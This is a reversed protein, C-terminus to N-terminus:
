VRRNRPREPIHSISRPHTKPHFPGAQVQLPGHKTGDAGERSQPEETPLYTPVPTKPAASPRDVPFRPLTQYPPFAFNLWNMPLQSMNASNQLSTDRGLHLSTQGQVNHDRIHTLAFMKPHGIKPLMPLMSSIGYATTWYKSIGMSKHWNALLHLFMHIQQQKKQTPPQILQSRCM